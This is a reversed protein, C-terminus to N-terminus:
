NSLVLMQMWSSKSQWVTNFLWLISKNGYHFLSLIIGFCVLDDKVFLLQFALKTINSAMLWLGRCHSFNM